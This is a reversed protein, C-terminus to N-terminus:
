QNNGGEVLAGKLMGSTFGIEKCLDKVKKLSDTREIKKAEVMQQQISEMEDQLEDYSKM